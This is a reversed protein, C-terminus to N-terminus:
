RGLQKRVTAASNGVKDIAKRLEEKSVGLQKTWYKVENEEHTNIKSRDPQGRNKLDDMPGIGQEGLKEAFRCQASVTGHSPDKQAPAASM